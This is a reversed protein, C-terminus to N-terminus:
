EGAGAQRMLEEAAGAGASLFPHVLAVCEAQAILSKRMQKLNRASHSIGGPREVVGAAAAIVEVEATLEASKARITVWCRLTGARDDFKVSYEVGDGTYTSAPIYRNAEVPGTLRLESVVGAYVARAEEFFEKASPAM